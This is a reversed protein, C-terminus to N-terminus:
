RSSDAQRETELKKTIALSNPSLMFANIIEDAICDQIKRKSSFTKEYAGQVMLRLVLDIRRQPSSEVAKPYRAGGYEITIIEERTAANEIAKVFVEIPNKKTKREVIELAKEMIKYLTTAKGSCHGSSIKHKKGKHGPIMMKNLLREIIFVKSKYFRYGAYRAGTKPVFVPKTTIYRELGPDEVKIHTTPWRNFALVENMM